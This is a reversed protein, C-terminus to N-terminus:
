SRERSGSGSSERSGSSSGIVASFANGPAMSVGQRARYKFGLDKNGSRCSRCGKSWCGVKSGVIVLGVALRPVERGRRWGNWWTPRIWGARAIRSIRNEGRCSRRPACRAYEANTAWLSPPTITGHILSPPRHALKASSTTHSADACHANALSAPSPTRTYWQATQLDAITRPYVRPSIVIFLLHSLAFRPDPVPGVPHSVCNKLHSLASAM